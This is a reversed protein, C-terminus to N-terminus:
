KISSTISSELRPCDIGFHVGLKIVAAVGRCDSTFRHPLRRAWNAGDAIQNEDSITRRYVVRARAHPNLAYIPSVTTYLRVRAHLPKRLGLAARKREKNQERVQVALDILSPILGVVAALQAIAALAEWTM